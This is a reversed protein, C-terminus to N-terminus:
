VNKKVHKEHGVNQNMFYQQNYVM